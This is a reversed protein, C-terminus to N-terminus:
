LGLAFILSLSLIVLFVISIVVTGFVRPGVARVAAFEVGLGLAAMSVIMVLKSGDQAAGAIATPALGVAQAILNFLGLSNLTALILFGGVFWPVAIARRMAARRDLASAASAAHAMTISFGLVVPGILLVRMLKVFTAVTGADPGVPFSAAVVQPVAYVTTGALVGYEYHTLHLLPVLFPLSLVLVVGVVATLAVAVTVDRKDAKIVPAVAAIASNGCISNGVAVLIALKANLGLLRGVTSSVLMALGVCLVILVLLRPGAQLLQAFNVSAGLVLVAFELLQKGAFSVGHAARAPQGVTNRLLIGFLIAIVLAEVVPTSSGTVSLTARELALAVIAMLVVLALGPLLEVGRQSVTPRRGAANRISTQFSL